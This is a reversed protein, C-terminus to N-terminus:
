SKCSVGVYKHAYTCAGCYPSGLRYVITESENWYAFYYCKNPNSNCDIMGGGVIPMFWLVVILRKLVRKAGRLKLSIFYPKLM